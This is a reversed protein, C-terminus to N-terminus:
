VSLERRKSPEVLSTWEAWITRLTRVGGLLQISKLSGTAYFNVAIFDFFPLVHSLGAHSTEYVEFSARGHTAQRTTPHAVRKHLEEVDDPHIFGGTAPYGFLECKLDDPYRRNLPRFFENLKRYYMLQGEAAANGVLTSHLATPLDTLRPQVRTMWAFHVFMQQGLYFVDDVAAELQERTLAM